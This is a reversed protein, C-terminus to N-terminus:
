ARSQRRVRMWGPSFAKRDNMARSNQAGRQLALIYGIQLTPANVQIAYRAIITTYNFGM